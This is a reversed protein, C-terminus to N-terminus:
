LIEAVVFTSGGVYIFDNHEANKAASKYAIEVSEYANANLTYKEALNMLVSIEEARGINPVCFYYTANQPLLSFILKLDKDKVFGLVLHLKHFTTQKIQEIVFAFGAANHTVDAVVLPNKDLMQWRGQLHTNSVVQQLGIRIHEEHLQDLHLTQLAVIATHKNKKQYLGNLDTQYPNVEVTDAWVIPAMLDGAITKFVTTTEEQIEGIVVPINKKIIGAKEGAIIELTNGLFQTHDFGINTIVSLIPTIINTADLRGGLGVEVVAYDINQSRFYEFSMGVTLEFFSLQADIFYSKYKQVFAVVYATEIAIGNIRIRETFDKLHPSTYLGVKCGAEMLVSTIMHATSGKGNTGAVHISTFNKHPNGLYTMFDKMKKLGPKYAVAGQQQYMPLQNYLWSRVEEYSDM